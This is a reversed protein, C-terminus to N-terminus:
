LLTVSGWGSRLGRNEGSWDSVTVMKVARLESVIVGVVAEKDEPRKTM